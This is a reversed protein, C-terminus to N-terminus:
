NVEIDFNTGLFISLESKQCMFSWPMPLIVIM